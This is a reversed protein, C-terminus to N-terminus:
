PVSRPTPPSASADSRRAPSPNAVASVARALLQAIQGDELGLGSLLEWTRFELVLRILARIGSRNGRLREAYAHAVADFRADLTRELLRDLQPVLHRDHHVHRQM